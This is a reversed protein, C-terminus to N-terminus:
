KLEIVRDFSGTVVQHAIVIAIKDSFHERICEFVDESHEQDLSATCEDLMVFPTNFMESLALTYALVVRTQEGGSLMNIDIEMGKYEIQTHIGHKIKDRIQKYPVIQVSIPNNPFFVDLYDRAYSNISDITKSISLSEAEAIKDKLLVSATHTCNMKQKNRKITNIKSLWNNYVDLQKNYVDWKDIISINDSHSKQKTIQYQITDDEVSICANLESLTRSHPHDTKLQTRNGDIKHKKCVLQEKQKNLANITYQYQTHQKVTDSLEDDSLSVNPIEDVNSLQLLLTDIKTQKSQIADKFLNYSVSLTNNKRLKDYEAHLSLHDTYYSEMYALDEKVDEIVPTDEFTGILDSLELHLQEKRRYEKTVSLLKNKNNQNKVRTEQITQALQKVYIDDYTHKTTKVLQKDQICLTVSCCPCTYISNLTSMDNYKLQLTAILNECNDIDSQLTSMDNETIYITSIAKELTHIRNLTLICEKYEHITDMTEQKSYSVWMTEEIKHIRDKRKSLETDKMKSLQSTHEIIQRKLDETPKQLKRYSLVRNYVTLMDDGIYDIHSRKKDIHTISQCVDDYQENLMGMKSELLTVSNYEGVWKKKRKTHRRILIDCNKYMVHENKIIVPINKRICKIPFIVPEPQELQEVFQKTTELETEMKILSVNCKNMHEKNRKKICAIDIDQFAIKEIFSLKEIPSMLIFSSINNQRIYGSTKFFIGFKNNVMEQGVDDEYKHNVILHNPGKTRVISLNDFEFEVRCSKCGHMQVKMGEGFLAFFIGRMISTKGSGSQGSILTIGNSGFEFTSDQYCLFHILRIKM